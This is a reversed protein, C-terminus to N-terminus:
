RCRESFSYVGAGGKDEPLRYNVRCTRGQGWQVQLQGTEPLGTMYVEGGEGTIGAGIHNTQGAVNVVAGFPVQRGDSQTLTIVARGGVRTVFTVPVVAGATPVVHTDTQPVEADEPLTAPDLAVVNDQYPSLYGLTTYGRFDTRVGPWGGVSVGSAGPAEVLGTTQGLTQGLTVGHRHVVMGGSVGANMQRYDPSYGYGGTLDGYTGSWTLDMRSSNQNRQQGGTTMQEQVNWHLRHDFGDGNLGIEHQDPRGANTLLRYSAYTNNGLWRELPVSVWLSMAHETRSGDNSSATNKRETWNLSWSVGNTTTGYSATVEDQHQSRNWYTERTGTFNLAGWDGLSQSLILSTRAKRKRDRDSNYRDWRTYGNPGSDDAANSRYSNLVESLTSFGSSAYQYSALAFGTHTAEFAKSYRARWTQGREAERGQKQGRAQIGDLSVAGFDGLSLGVGLATAQYHSAGQFGGFATLNWPLGYMLTVQGFGASDTGNDSSRYQGGTLNYKLYGQRLAIAPTAYPVTYVQRKGDAELVTVQLDGGSSGPSLEDLSYAGPAVTTSYILYGNQRVEIRAQTQVIGKVVPAFERQNYPVMADDSGLMVGRFPVSDFVDSPSGREGLTLRSKMGYLGREAYTYASQWKGDRKGQKQWTTLNRLRWAGFNLGPELQAYLSDSATSGSGRYESRNANARYNMLFAPIGDNWLAEPAIGRLKPRLAVQPISLLLQQRNFQFTETAQPIVTLDACRASSTTESDNASVNAFLGPYSEVKVGYRSLLDRTLCTKLVPKGAADKAQHFVMERSDVREGNLLVDVLYVGPLQGGQEFLSVDVNGGLQSADFSYTKEEAQCTLCYLVVCGALVSYLFRPHLFGNKAGSRDRAKNPSLINM